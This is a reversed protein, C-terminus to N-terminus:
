LFKHFILKPLNKKVSPTLAKALEPYRKLDDKSFFATDIYEQPIKVGAKYMDSFFRLSNANAKSVEKIKFQIIHESIKRDYVGLFKILNPLLAEWTNMAIKDLENQNFASLPITENLLVVSILDDGSKVNRKEPFLMDSRAEEKNKKEFVEYIFRARM